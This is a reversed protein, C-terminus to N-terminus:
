RTAATTETNTGHRIRPWFTNWDFPRSFEGYHCQKCDGAGLPRYQFQVKEQSQREAVHLSGPGHCSECTVNILKAGQYARRYGSASGFGVTHCPICSPDADAKKMVLSPFAHAHETHSWIEAAQAHCKGCSETGVYTARGRVGPVINEEIRELDDISLHATRVQDRYQSELALIGADEPIKDHLMFMQYGLVEFQPRARVSATGITRSENATYLISSRNVRVLRQSPQSVKGGLILRFEYFQNALRNLGDEDTFALLIFADAQKRLAPLLQELTTEMPEVRLGPGLETGLGQSDVIGVIAIKSGGREIIKWPEFVRKGTSADFVNASILTVPSSAKILELQKLSLGIERQGLNAAEYGMRGYAQLIYRYQIQQYDEAGGIADGVDVKIDSTNANDHLYTALRTLGGNQGTFCGCPALRGRTDGSFYVSLEPPTAPKSQRFLWFGGAAVCVVVVALLGKKM